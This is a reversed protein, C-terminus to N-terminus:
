ATSRRRGPSDTGPPRPIPCPTTWAEVSALADIRPDVTVPILTGTWRAGRSEDDCTAETELQGVGLWAFELPCSILGAKSLENCGAPDPESVYVGSFSNLVVAGTELRQDIVQVALQDEPGLDAEMSTESLLVLPGDSSFSGGCVGDISESFTYSGTTFRFALLDHIDDPGANWVIEVDVTQDATSLPQETHGVLHGQLTIVGAASSSAPSPDPAVSQPGSSPAGGSGPASSGAGGGGGGGVVELSPSATPGSSGSAGGCAAILVALVGSVIVPIRVCPM